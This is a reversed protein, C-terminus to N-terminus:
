KNRDSGKVSPPPTGSLIWEALAQQNTAGADIGMAGNWVAHTWGCGMIVHEHTEM